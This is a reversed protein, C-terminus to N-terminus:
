RATEDYYGKEEDLALASLIGDSRFSTVIWRGSVTCGERSFGSPTSPAVTRCRSVLHQPLYQSSNEVAEPRSGRREGQLVLTGVPVIEM